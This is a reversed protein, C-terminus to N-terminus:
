TDVKNKSVLDKVVRSSVSYVLCTALLILRREKGVAGPSCHAASCGVEKRTETRPVSSLDEHMPPM